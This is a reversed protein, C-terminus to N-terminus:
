GLRDESVSVREATSGTRQLPKAFWMYLGGILAWAGLGVFFGYNEYWPLDSARPWSINIIEFVLWTVGVACLFTNIAPGYSYPTEIPDTWKKKLRHYLLAALPCLFGIYYAGATFNVLVSLVNAYLFASASLVAVLLVAYTPSQNFATVKRWIRAGPIQGDRSFSWVVRTAAGQTAIGCAIFSVLVVCLFPTEAWGGFANVVASSIPDGEYEGEPIALTWAVAGLIDIVGVALVSLFMARPVQRKADKTEEAVSGCADFGVILWATSAIVAVMAPISAGGGPVAATIVREEPVVRFFFLLILGIIVSAIIEAGVGFNVVVKLLKLGVVNVLTIASLLGLALFIHNKTPGPDIGLLHGLFIAGAYTTLSASLVLAAIYYWGAWWGYRPGVLRKSWQYIGGAIPWRAALPGYSLAVIGQFLVVVPVAWIWMVGATALGLQFVTFLGVVPSVFAFGVAWNTWMKLVRPLEQQYGFESLAAADADQLVPGGDAREDSQEIM